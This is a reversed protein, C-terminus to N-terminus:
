SLRAKSRRPLQRGHGGLAVACMWETGLWPMCSSKCCPQLYLQLRWARFARRLEMLFAIREEEESSLSHKVYVIRGAFVQQGSEYAGKVHIGSDPFVVKLLARSGNFLALKPQVLWPNPMLPTSFKALTLRIPVRRKPSQRPSPAIFVGGLSVVLWPTQNCPLAFTRCLPFAM